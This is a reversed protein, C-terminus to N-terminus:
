PKVGRIALIVKLIWEMSRIIGLSTMGGLFIIEVNSMHQTIQYAQFTVAGIASFIMEGVFKKWNIPEPSLLTRAVTGATFLLLVKLFTRDTIHFALQPDEHSM